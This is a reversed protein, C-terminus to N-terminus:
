PNGFQQYMNRFAEIQDAKSFHQLVRQRGAEGMQQRLQHDRALISIKEALAAGNRRSVVFGTVGDEVNESLGDADSCVVPLKMAQAEIVANCFGESVAAHLFIDANLLEERVKKQECSALFTVVNELGLISRIFSLSELYKGDGIIKYECDIGQDRLSRIALLAYEYGKKWELRGVSIIRIKGNPHLEIRMSKFSPRILQPASLCM